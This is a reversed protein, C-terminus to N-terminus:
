NTVKISRSIATTPSYVSDGDYGAALWHTGVSLGSVNISAVGSVLTGGSVTHGDVKMTVKGTPTPSSASSVKVSFKVTATKKVSSGSSPSTIALTATKLSGSGSLLVTNSGTVTNDLIELNAERAGAGQPTFIVGINCTHGSGLTGSHVLKCNTTNSDIKFDGANAGTIVAKSIDLTDNGTNAVAVVKAASSSGKAQNAFSLLGATGVQRIVQDTGGTNTSSLIYVQGQSDVALGTPNKLTASTAAGGDGSYGATGNGAITSIIGTNADIRRVRNNDTDTFYFNGAIDLAFQGVSAGIEANGAQGSDGSFGCTRGGAVKTSVVGINVANEYSQAFIVCSGGASYYSYINDDTDVAIPLSGTFPYNYQLYLPIGDEFIDGPVPVIRLAGNADNLFVNGNPDTTMGGPSDFPQGGIDCSTGYACPTPGADYITEQGGIALVQLTDPSRQTFYVEGASDATIGIPATTGFISSLAQIAGSSDVYRLANNGTDAIYLTDGGDIALSTSSAIIGTGSSVTGPLTTIVSPTFSVAPSSANGALGFSVTKPEATHSVNLFSVRHGPGQPDFRVLLSCSGGRTYSSGERCTGGPEIVFDKNKSQIHTLRTEAAFNLTLVEVGADTGVSSAAFVHYNAPLHEFTADGALRGLDAGQPRPAPALSVISNPPAVSAVKAKAQAWVGSSMTCVIALALAGIGFKDIRTARSVKM